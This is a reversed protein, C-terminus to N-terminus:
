VLEYLGTTSLMVGTAEIKVIGPECVLGNLALAVGNVELKAATFGSYIGLSELKIGSGGMDTVGWGNITPQDVKHDNAVSEIKIPNLITANPANYGLKAGIWLLSAWLSTTPGYKETVGSPCIEMSPGCVLETLNGQHLETTVGSTRTWGGIWTEDTTGFVQQTQSASYKEERAGLVVSQHGNDFIETRPKGTVTTTQTSLYVESVAKDVTTKQPGTITSTQDKSYTETVDSGVQEDLEGGVEILQHSGIDYLGDKDTHLTINHTGHLPHGLNLSTDAPPTHVWIFQKGKEDEIELRTRGGTQLVNQTANASTVVSPTVANPVAGVIV